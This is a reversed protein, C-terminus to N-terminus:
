SLTYLGRKQLMEKTQNAIFLVQSLETQYVDSVDVDMKKIGSNNVISPDDSFAKTYSLSKGSKDYNISSSTENLEGDYTSVDNYFDNCRGSPLTGLNFKSFLNLPNSNNNRVDSDNISGDESVSVIGNNDHSLSITYNHQLNGSYFYDNNFSIQYAGESAFKDFNKNLSSHEQRLGSCEGQLGAGDSRGGPFSTLMLGSYKNFVNLCRNYAGPVLVNIGNQVNEFRNDEDLGKIDANEVVTIIGNEEASVSHILDYTYSHGEDGFRSGNEDYLSYTEFNKTFSCAGNFLNYSEEYTKKGSANYFGSRQSDIFGFSPDLAFIKEALLKSQGIPDEVEGSNFTSNVSHSYSFHDGDDINFSFNESFESLNHHSEFASKVGTLFNGDMNYLDEEGSHSIEIGFVHKGLRINNTLTEQNAPLSISVIRGTGFDRGNIIINEYDHANTILSQINTQMEAVGSSDVNLSRLDIYSEVNLTKIGGLRFSGDSLFKNEHSYTLLQAENFEM